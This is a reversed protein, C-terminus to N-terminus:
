WDKVRRTIILLAEEPSTVSWTGGVGDIKLTWKKGIDGSRTVSVEDVPSLEAVVLRRRSPAQLDLFCAQIAIAKAEQASSPKSIPGSEDFVRVEPMIGWLPSAPRITYYGVVRDTQRAIILTRAEALSSTYSTDALASPTGAVYFPWAFGESNSEALSRIDKSSLDAILAQRTEVLEAREKRLADLNSRAEQIHDGNPFSAIYGEYSELRDSKGVHSWVVPETSGLWGTVVILALYTLWFAKRVISRAKPVAAGAKRKRARYGSRAILGGPVGVCVCMLLNYVAVKPGNGKALSSICTLLSVGM